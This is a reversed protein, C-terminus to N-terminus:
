EADAFFPLFDHIEPPKNGLLKLAKLNEPSNALAVIRRANGPTLRNARLWKYIAEHSRNLPGELAKVKLIGADGFPADTYAPLFRILAKNLAGDVKWDTDPTSM